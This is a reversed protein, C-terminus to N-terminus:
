TRVAELLSGSDAIQKFQCVRGGRFTFVQVWHLDYPRGTPKFRGRERAIVVVTDGQATVSLIEPRQDEVQAFNRRLAEEVQERGQWHGVFPMAPPGVIEMDVDDTMQGVVEKYDGKALSRYQDQLRRVNVEEARKNPVEADGELFALYLRETFASVADPSM